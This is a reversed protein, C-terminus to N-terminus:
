RLLPLRIYTNLSCFREHLNETQLIKSSHTNTKNERCLLFSNKKMTHMEDAMKWNTNWKCAAPCPSWPRLLLPLSLAPPFECPWRHTQLFATWCLAATHHSFAPNFEPHIKKFLYIWHHFYPVFLIFLFIALRLGRHQSIIRVKRKDWYLLRPKLHKNKQITFRTKWYCKNFTQRTWGWIKLWLLWNEYQFRTNILRVQWQARTWLTNTTYNSNALRFDSPEVVRPIRLGASSDAPPLDM